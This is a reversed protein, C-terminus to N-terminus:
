QHSANSPQQSELRAELWKFAAQRTRFLQTAQARVPQVRLFVQALPVLLSAIVLGISGPLKPLNKQMDRIKQRVYPTMSVHQDSFDYIALYPRDSPWEDIIKEVLKCYTDVAERASSRITVVVIRKNYFWECHVDKSIVQLTSSTSDLDPNLHQMSGGNDM